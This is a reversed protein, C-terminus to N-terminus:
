DLYMFENGGLLIQTYREWRTMKNQEGNAAAEDAASSDAAADDAAALYALGLEMELASPARGFALAFARQIRARDTTPEERHLRAAFSKAQEIMFPSNLVFLQQQPVTTQSRKSSTINADPFDFLRLLSDLEHRSIKAYVTRRVNGADALNTSAGGMARDLRGSVDLLADRWAEVDLRRRNMRWLWRNDADINANAKAAQTSARYTASLMIERHISRISWGSKLFRDALYDLLEPHTPAEGLKGFNSPTAVIGRGFHHQWIRNVMLRPTLPNEPSAIADALERRGSGQTFLPRDDGALVRLFRRPALERQNAPNGRAFVKMDEIKGEAITHAIPYMAPAAQRAAALQDRLKKLESRSEEPLHAALQKDPIAFLGKDGFVATLLEAGGLRTDAPAETYVRFQISANAGCAGQDSGSHDLGGTVQFREYGPPLDYVIVSPAHTGIGHPYNKGGVKLPVGGVSKDIQIKGFGTQASKWKLDTLRTTGDPGILQPDLWDAHDCSKGNGADTVVLYLEKAGRIDINIKVAPRAKTIVDSAFRPSGPMHKVQVQPDTTPPPQKGDRQDLLRQLYNELQLAVEAVAAPVEDTGEEAAAPLLAFWSDFAPVKGKNKPDLFEVWRKLLFAPLGAKKAVGGIKVPQGSQQAVRLQWVAKIYRAVDERKAEAAITKQAALYKKVAGDRNKVEQQGTNYTAVEAPDCLPANHLKSSKFIGALSYYDQTPIPDFKHDHCRACSVTLGLFARTLTDVRDDLEDAAAKAADSNKYYQAGLGFFGLAVLHDYSQDAVPGLLDGAIQLKVFRDYAMDSNFASIVWDRYRFGNTNPKVAFTHAQDEAYRAVDLWYRGWREGYHQSSLLRDVVKAFAAPSTDELFDAVEAPQPPLGILDYTARRILEQKGAPDVPSVGASEMKALTFYDITGQPWDAQKVAPLPPSVVPRFPWNERAAAFDIASPAAVEGARPDPAGMKVWKVFDAVVADPLKGQPPMEFNEQRLADILLSAAVQRPVVAPGSDGGKRTAARSDLLLGGQVKKADASHCQYCHKVLVPRIKQEFFEIQEASLQQEAEPEEAALVSRGCTLLVFWAVAMSIPSRFFWVDCINM